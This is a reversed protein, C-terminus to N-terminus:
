TRDFIFKSENSWFDASITCETVICDVTIETVMRKGDFFFAFLYTEVAQSVVDIAHKELNRLDFLLAKM